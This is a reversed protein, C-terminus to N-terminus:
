IFKELWNGQYNNRACIDVEKRIQGRRMGKKVYKCEIDKIEQQLRRIFEEKGKLIPNQKGGSTAESEVMRSSTIEVDSEVTKMRQQEMNVEEGEQYNDIRPDLNSSEEPQVTLLVPSAKQELQSIKLGEELQAENIKELAAEM